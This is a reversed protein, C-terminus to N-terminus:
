KNTHKKNFIEVVASISIILVPIELLIIDSKAFYIEVKNLNSLHKLYTILYSFSVNLRFM